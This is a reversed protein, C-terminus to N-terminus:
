TSCMQDVAAMKFRGICGPYILRMKTTCIINPPLPLLMVSSIYM